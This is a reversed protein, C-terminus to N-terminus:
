THLTHLTKHKVEKKCKDKKNTRVKNRHVLYMDQIFTQIWSFILFTNFMVSAIWLYLTIHLVLTWMSKYSLDPSTSQAHRQLLFVMYSGNLIVFTAIHGQSHESEWCTAVSLSSQLIFDKDHGPTPPYFWDKLVTRMCVVKRKQRCLTHTCILIIQENNNKLRVETRIYKILQSWFPAPMPLITAVGSFGILEGPQWQGMM